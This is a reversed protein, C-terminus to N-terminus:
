KPLKWAPQVHQYDANTLQVLVPYKDKDLWAILQKVAPEPMATCGATGKQNSKWIHMFICSGAGLTPNTVNYDVVLGHKYFPYIQHMQEGSNWDDKTVKNSEVIHGYYKSHTDDVCVTDNKIQYYDLKTKPSAQDTFGFSTGLPFIGAPSKNDGEQKKPGPLAYASVMKNGWGLGNKGVVIVWSNGVPKWTSHSNKRQYRQLKGQLTDWNATKVVVLQTASQLLTPELSTQQAFTALPISLFPVAALCGAIKKRNM